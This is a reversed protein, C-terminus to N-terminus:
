VYPGYRPGGYWVLKNRAPLVSSSAKCPAKKTEWRIKEPTTVVQVDGILNHLVTQSRAPDHAM